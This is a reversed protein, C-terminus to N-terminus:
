PSVVLRRSRGAADIARLRPPGGDMILLVLPNAAGRAFVRSASASPRPPLVAAAPFDSSYAVWDVDMYMDQTPAPGGWGAINGSWHNLMMAAEQDPVQKTLSGAPKGDVFYDVSGPHWDFRYEHFDAAPDFDLRVLKYDVDTQIHHLTFHLDRNDKTLMEVDIENLPSDRYVFWGVVGGPVHSTRISARYSGYRFDSRKSAIEACVPKTGPPSASLKLTLIGGAVSVNQASHVRTDDGWTSIDWFANLEDLSNFDQKITEAPATIALALAFAAARLTNPM